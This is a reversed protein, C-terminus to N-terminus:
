ILLDRYSKLFLWAKLHQCLISSSQPSTMELLANWVGPGAIPFALQWCNPAQRVHLYSRRGHVDNLDVILMCLISTLTLTLTLRYLEGLCIM